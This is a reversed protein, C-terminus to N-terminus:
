LRSMVTVIDTIEYQTLVYGNAGLDEWLNISSKWGQTWLGHSITTRKLM